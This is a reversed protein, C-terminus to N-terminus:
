PAPPPMQGRCWPKASMPTTLLVAVDRIPLCAQNVLDCRYPGRCDSDSTCAKVWWKKAPDRHSVFLAGSKPRCSPPMTEPVACTGSPWPWPDDKLCTGGQGCDADQTCAEGVAVGCDTDGVPPFVPAPGCWMPAAVQHWGARQLRGSPSAFAPVDQASWLLATVPAWGVFPEDADQRRNQNVDRYSLFFAAGVAPAGPPHALLEPRPDDFIPWSFSRAAEMAIGTEPQEVLDELKMSPSVGKPTWFLATRVEAGLGDIDYTSPQVNGQLTVKATGQYREDVLPDGCASAALALVLGARFPTLVAM